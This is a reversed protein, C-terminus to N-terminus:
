VNRCRKVLWIGLYLVQRTQTADLEGTAHVGLSMGDGTEDEWEMGDWIRVLEHDQM